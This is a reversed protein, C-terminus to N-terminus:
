IGIIQNLLAYGAESSTSYKVDVSVYNDYWTKNVVLCNDARNKGSSSM